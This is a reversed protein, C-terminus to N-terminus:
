LAEVLQYSLLNIRKKAKTKIYIVPMIFGLLLTPLLGYWPLGIGYLLGTCTLSSLLRIVFFEEPKLSSGSQVLYAQTKQSFRMGAFAKAFSGIMQKLTQKKQKEEVESVTIA